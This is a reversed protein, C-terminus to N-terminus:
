TNVTIALLDRAMCKVHGWINTCMDNMPICKIIFTCSKTAESNSHQHHKYTWQTQHPHLKSSLLVSGTLVFM